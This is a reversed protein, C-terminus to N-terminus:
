LRFNIGLGLTKFQSLMLTAGFGRTFKYDAGIGYREGFSTTSGGDVYDSEFTTSTLGAGLRIFPFFGVDQKEYNGMMRNVPLYGAAYIQVGYSASSTGAFDFTSLGAGMGLNLFNAILKFEQDVDLSFGNTPFSAYARSPTYKVPTAITNPTNSVSATQASTTATRNGTMLNSLPSSAPTTAPVTNVTATQTNEFVERNGNKYIIMFIESKKLSYSPGELFEFKKYKVTNEEIELIKAKIETKDTKYIIDQASASFGCFVIVTLIFFKLFDIHKM